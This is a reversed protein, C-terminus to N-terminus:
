TDRAAGRRIASGAAVAAGCSAVASAADAQLTVAQGWGAAEARWLCASVAPLCRRRAAQLSRAALRDLKSSWRRRGGAEPILESLGPKVYRPNDATDQMAESLQPCVPAAGQRYGANM